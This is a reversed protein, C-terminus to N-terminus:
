ILYNDIIDVFILDNKIKEKFNYDLLFSDLEEKTHTKMYQIKLIISTKHYKYIMDFYTKKLLYKNINNYLIKFMDITNLNVQTYLVKKLIITNEIIFDFINYILSYGDSINKMKNLLKDKKDILSLYHNMNTNLYKTLDTKDILSLYHNMNTNLYKTLDTKDTLILNNYYLLEKNLKNFTKTNTHYNKIQNIILNIDLKLKNIYDFTIDNINDSFILNFSSFKIKMLGIQNLSFENIDITKFNDDICVIKNNNTKIIDYNLCMEDYEKVNNHNITNFNFLDNNVIKSLEILYLLRIKIFEIINENM